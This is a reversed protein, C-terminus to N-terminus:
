KVNVEVLELKKENPNGMIFVVRDNAIFPEDRRNLRLHNGIEIAETLANGNRDLKMMYTRVFKTDTWKEWFLLVEDNRRIVKLRSANETDKNQYDVLWNLGNHQQESWTGGFSYFGGTENIGPTIVWDDKDEPDEKIRIHGIDRADYLYGIARSNNIAKGSPDPEGIFYIDFGDEWAVIGGLETYTANDNSWQYFTKDKTSIENYRPYSRGAPSVAQDGHATKFTYIVMSEIEDDIRHLNIGRPYNDGLDMGFFGGEPHSYLLNDFSHGSTQGFNEITELTEANFTVAIAGQHNLGDGSKNMRRSIMLGLVGQNYILSGSESGGFEFINLGERTLDLANSKILNGNIDAAMIWGEKADKTNIIIYYWTNGEAVAATLRGKKFPMKVSLIKEKGLQLSNLYINDNTQDQWMVQVYPSNFRSFFHRSDGYMNEHSSPSGLFGTPTDFIVGTVPYRTKYVDVSSNSFIRAGEIQDSVLHYISVRESKKVAFLIMSEDVDSASIGLKVFEDKKIKSSAIESLQRLDGDRLGYLIYDQVSEFKMHVIHNSGLFEAAKKRPAYVQYANYLIDGQSNQISGKEVRFESHNYRGDTYCGNQYLEAAIALDGLVDEPLIGKDCGWVSSVDTSRGPLMKEEEAKFIFQKLDPHTSQGNANWALLSIGLYVIYFLSKM